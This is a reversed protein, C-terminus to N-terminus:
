TYGKTILRPLPFDRYISTKISFVDTFLLLWMIIMIIIYNIIIIIIITIIIIVITLLIHKMAM